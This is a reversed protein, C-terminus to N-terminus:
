ESHDFASLAKYDERALVEVMEKQHNEHLDKLFKETQELKGPNIKFKTLICQM